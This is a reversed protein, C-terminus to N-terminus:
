RVEAFIDQCLEIGLQIDAYFLKSRELNSRRWSLLVESLWVLVEYM